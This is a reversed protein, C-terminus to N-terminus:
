FGFHKASLLKLCAQEGSRTKRKFGQCGCTVNGCREEEFGGKKTTWGRRGHWLRGRGYEKFGAVDTEQQHLRLLLQTTSGM